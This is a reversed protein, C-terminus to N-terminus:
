TAVERRIRKSGRLAKLREDNRKRLALLEPAIERAPAIVEAELKECRQCIPYLECLERFPKKKGLNKAIVAVADKIDSRDGQKPVDGRRWPGEERTEEKSCYAVCQKPSGKAADIHARPFATKVTNFSTQNKFLLYVQLHPTGNEGKELQWVACRENPVEPLDNTEPNNITLLYGRSKQM